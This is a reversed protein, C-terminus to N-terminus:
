NLYGFFNIKEIGYKIFNINELSIRLINLRMDIYAKMFVSLYHCRVFCVFVFLLSCIYQNLFNKKNTRNTRNTKNTALVIIEEIKM